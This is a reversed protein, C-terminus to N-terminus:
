SVLNSRIKDRRSPVRAVEWAAVSLSKASLPKRIRYSSIVTLESDFM